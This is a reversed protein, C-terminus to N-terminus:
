QPSPELVYGLSRVSRINVSEPLKKRLYGVYVDVLKPSCRDTGWISQLIQSRSVTQGRNVLLYRLLRYETISLEIPIGNDLAVGRTDDLSLDGVRAREGEAIEVRWLIRRVRAVLENVHVPHMLFADGGALLADIRDELDADKSVFVIPVDIMQSRLRVCLEIGGIPSLATDAVILDIRELAMVSLAENSDRAPVVQLGDACLAAQLPRRTAEDGEAVLV